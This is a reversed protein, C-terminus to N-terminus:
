TLAALFTPYVAETAKESWLLDQHAHGPVVVRRYPARDLENLLWEEMRSGGERHWLLNNSGTVFTTWTVDDFFNQPSDLYSSPSAVASSSAAFGRRCIEAVHQCLGLNLTGFYSELVDGRVSEVLEYEFPEGYLFSLRTFQPDAPVGEPLKPPLRYFPTEAERWVQWAVALQEPWTPDDLPSDAYVELWTKALDKAPTRELIYDQILYQRDRAVRFFLPLTNLVVNEVNLGAAHGAAVCMAFSGAGVCHALVQIPKAGGYHDHIKQLAQGHDWQAVADLNFHAINQRCGPCPSSATCTAACPELGAKLEAVVDPDGSGRWDLFWVDFDNSRLYDAVGNGGDQVIFTSAAATLGHILLVVREGTGEDPEWPGRLLARNKGDQPLWQSELMGLVDIM